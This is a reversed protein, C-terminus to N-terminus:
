EIIKAGCGPCFKVTKPKGKPSYRFVRDTHTHCNGCYFTRLKVPAIKHENKATKVVMLEGSNIKAEYFDRVHNAANIVGLGHAFGDYGEDQKVRFAEHIYADSLLPEREEVKGGRAIGALLSKSGFDIKDKLPPLIIKDQRM